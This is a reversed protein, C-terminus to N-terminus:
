WIPMGLLLEVSVTSVFTFLNKVGIVDGKADFDIDLIARGGM